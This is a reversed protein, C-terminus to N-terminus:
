AVLPAVTSFLLLQTVTVPPSSIWYVSLFAKMASKKSAFSYTGRAKVGSDNLAAATSRTAYITYGLKAFRRGISIAEGKDADKVTIIM